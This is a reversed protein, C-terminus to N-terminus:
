PQNQELWPPFDKPKGQLAADIAMNMRMLAMLLEPTMATGPVKEWLALVEAECAALAAHRKRAPVARFREFITSM